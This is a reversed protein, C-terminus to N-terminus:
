YIRVANALKGLADAAEIWCNTFKERLDQNILLNGSLILVNAQLIRSSIQELVLALLVAEDSM